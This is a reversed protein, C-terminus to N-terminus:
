FVIEEKIKSAHKQYLDETIQDNIFKQEVKDLMSQKETIKKKLTKTDISNQMLREKIKQTM